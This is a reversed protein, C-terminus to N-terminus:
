VIEMMLNLVDDESLIKMCIYKLSSLYLNSKRGLNVPGDCIILGSELNVVKATQITGIIAKTFENYECDSMVWTITSTADEFHFQYVEDDRLSEWGKWTSM